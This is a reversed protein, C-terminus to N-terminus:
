KTRIVITRAFKDHLTQNNKDWAVWLLDIFHPLSLAFLILFQHAEHHLQLTTPKAYTQFHYLSGIITLVGYAVARKVARQYNLETVGDEDVCRVSVARMGLTQGHNFGIFLSGYFFTTVTVLVVSTAFSAHAAHLPLQVVVYLLLGDIFFGLFRIWFGAPARGIAPVSEVPFAPLPAPNAYVASSPSGCSSCFQQGAIEQAGCTPCTAM